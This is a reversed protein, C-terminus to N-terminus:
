KRGSFKNLGTDRFKDKGVNHELMGRVNGFPPRVKNTSKLVAKNTDLLRGLWFGDWPKQINLVKKNHYGEYYHNIVENIRAHYRNFILMGSEIHLESDIMQPYVTMLKEQNIEQILNYPISTKCEVDGDLWVIYKTEINKLAYWIAYSKYSWRLAKALRNLPKKRLGHSINQIHEKFEQQEPIHTYFDKVNVTNSLDDVTFDEAFVILDYKCFRKFTEIFNNGYLPIHDRAFTTIVVVDKYM